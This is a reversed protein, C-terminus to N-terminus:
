AGRHARPSDLLQCAPTFVSATLPHRDFSQWAPVLVSSGDHRVGATDIIVMAIDKARRGACDLVHRSEMRRWLHPMDTMPPNTVTYDFGLWVTKALSDTGIRSTDLAVKLSPNQTVTVWPGGDRDTAVPRRNCATVLTALQILVFVRFSLSSRM